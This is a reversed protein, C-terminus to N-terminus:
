NDKNCNLTKENIIVRETPTFQLEYKEVVSVWWAVYDCHFQNNPPMWEDPGKQGKSSNVRRSTLMLNDLDNAFKQKLQKSWDCGGHWHAWQLPVVHDVTIQRASTFIQGTYRDEWAGVDVVCGRADNFEIAGINDRILVDARTDQCDYNSDRWHSWDARDYPECAWAVVPCIILILFLIKM